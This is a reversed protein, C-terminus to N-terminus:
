IQHGNQLPLQTRTQENTLNMQVDRIRNVVTGLQQQIQVNQQNFQQCVTTLEKFIPVLQDVNANKSPATLSSLRANWKNEFANIMSEIQMQQHNFLESLRQETLPRQPCESVHHGEKHCRHCTPAWYPRVPCRSGDILIYNQGLISKAFNESKFDIRISGLPKGDKDHVRSIKEIGLYNHELDRLLKTEDIGFSVKSAILSRPAPQQPVPSATQSQRPSQQKSSM